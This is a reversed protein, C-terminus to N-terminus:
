INMPLRAWINQNNTATPILTVLGSQRCSTLSLFTVSRCSYHRHQLLISLPSLQKCVEDRRNNLVVAQCSKVSEDFTFSRGGLCHSIVLSVDAGLASVVSHLADVTFANIVPMM